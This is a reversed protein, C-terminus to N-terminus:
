ASAKEALRRQQRDALQELDQKVQDLGAKTGQQDYLDSAKVLAQVALGDNGLNACALGYNHFAEACAPEATMVAMFETVARNFRGRRFADCGAQLQTRAREGVPVSAVRTRM